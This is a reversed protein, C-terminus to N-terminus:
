ELNMPRDIGGPIRIVFFQRRVRDSPTYLWKCDMVFPVKVHTEPILHLSNSRNEGRNRRLASHIALISCMGAVRCDALGNLIAFWLMHGPGHLPLVTASTETPCAGMIM